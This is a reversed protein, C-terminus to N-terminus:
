KNALAAVSRLGYGDAFIAVFEADDHVFQTVDDTEPVLVRSGVAVVM